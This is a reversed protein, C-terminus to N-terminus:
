QLDGEEEQAAFPEMWFGKMIGSTSLRIENTKLLDQKVSGHFLVEMAYAVGRNALHTQPGSAQLCGGMGPLKGDNILIDPAFSTIKPLLVKGNRKLCIQAQGGADDNGGMILTVNKLRWVEREIYARSSNNDVCVFVTLPRDNNLWMNKHVKITDPNMYLTIGKVMLDPFRQGLTEEMVTAKAKGIAGQFFQREMNGPAVVDGDILYVESEKELAAVRVVSEALAYGIGGCGIIAYRNGGTRGIRRM